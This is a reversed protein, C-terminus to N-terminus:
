SNQIAKVNSDTKQLEQGNEQEQEEDDDYLNRMRDAFFILLFDFLSGIAM